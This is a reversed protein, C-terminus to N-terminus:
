SILDPAHQKYLLTEFPVWHLFALAHDFELCVKLISLPLICFFGPYLM